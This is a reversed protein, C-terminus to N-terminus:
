QTTAAGAELCGRGRRRSGIGTTASTAGVAQAQAPHTPDARNIRQGLLVGQVLGGLDGLAADARQARLIQLLHALGLPAGKLARELCEPQVRVVEILCVTLSTERVKPVYQLCSSAHCLRAGHVLLFPRGLLRIKHRRQQRACGFRQVQFGLLYAPEPLLEPGSQRLGLSAVQLCAQHAQHGVHAASTVLGVLFRGFQNISAEPPGRDPRTRSSGGGSSFSGGIARGGGIGGPPPSGGSRPAPGSGNAARAPAAPPPPGVGPPAGGAPPGVGSPLKRGGPPGGARGPVGGPGGGVPGPNGGPKGGPKGVPPGRPPPGGPRGVPPGGPAGGSPAGGGIPSGGPPGNGVRGGTAAWVGGNGGITGGGGAGVGEVTPTAPPAAGPAWAGTICM